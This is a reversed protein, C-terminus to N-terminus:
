HARSSSSVSSSKEMVRRLGSPVVESKIAMAPSSHAGAGSVITEDFCPFARRAHPAEFQTAALTHETGDDDLYTSRYFGVLGASLAASFRLTLTAPGPALDGATVTLREADPDAVLTADLAAGDQEVAGLEVELEHAHLVITDTPETVEVAIHVSGEFRGAALDPAITLDYRTPLVTRSLRM